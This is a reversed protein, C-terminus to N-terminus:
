LIPMAEVARTDRTARAPWRERILDGLIAVGAEIQAPAATSYSLRATRGGDAGAHFAEGGSYRVGRQRAALALERGDIGAPLTLWVFLGGEPRTFVAEPPLHRALAQIMCDRRERHSPLARALHEELGGARLFLHLASQLLPSTGCDRIQKLAVLRQMVAAPAAVWGIRLGPLLKKSFTNLYIVHAGGDLAHLTPLEPGALRLGSAWDDEVVLCRRDRALDLIERRRRQGMVATTPNHFTPQVYLLRPRHRELAVALLDPRLGQEDTPVAVVRAGLSELVSLAGTYTPEEVIVAEGRDVFASFVLEIAQQAGHTILVGEGEVGASGAERMRAAIAERLPLHGATPGYGLIRAGEERLAAALARGFSEVPILEQAPYSGAFSIGDSATALQYVSLLGAVKPAEVARSFSSLWEGAPDPRPARPGGDADAARALFTGKGQRGEVWGEATLTEYATVVTQRSVGLDRSLDRTAPLRRGRPLRGDLAAARVGAAIQRYVPVASATDISLGPILM